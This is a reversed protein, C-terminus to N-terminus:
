PQIESNNQSSFSEKEYNKSAPPLEQPAFIKSSFNVSSNNKQYNVINKGAYFNSTKESLYNHNESIEFKALADESITNSARHGANSLAMKIAGVILGRIEAEFRFRVEAKAPHVNVDVEDAPLKLFLAVVANRDRALFDLYAGRIAGLIAKDRVPRDNVFLFQDASTSRNFTPLSAFGKLEANGRKTNIEVCNEQFDEGLIEGIRKLWANESFLNKKYDLIIKGNERLSFGCEPNVMAFKNVIDIIKSKESRETKLFKLRAPTAYFLDSIEIKTGESINSPKKYIINGGEIYIQNAESSGKLISSIKMKSISAISPIAEGRFGFFKINFLDEDPLKSTAHRLLCLELDEANMGKGNDTIALYTKGGESFDVDIQTAGADLSNEVLEKVVSAPREVVEGAAIRNVLNSPLIKITSIM